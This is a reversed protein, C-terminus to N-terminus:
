QGRRFRPFLMGVRGRYEVYRAGFQAILDKEELGIAFVIYVTMALSFLLHGNSMKPAAWFALVFGLYLPHRVIRYLFPTIFRPESGRHDLAGAFAQQLGFLEFHNILFTSLFVLSWGLHSIGLAIASGYPGLQWVYGDIPRWQWMFAALAASSFAVYTSRELPAPVIRTWARKFAPRAMVSHQLGFMVVLAVDILVAGFMGINSAGGHDITKPVIADDVFGITYLITALSLLYALVGYIAIGFRRTRHHKSM